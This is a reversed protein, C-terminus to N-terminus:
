LVWCFDFLDINFTSVFSKTKVCNSWLLQELNVQLKMLLTTDEVMNQVATLDVKVQPRVQVSMLHLKSEGLHLSDYKKSGKMQAPVDHCESESEAEGEAQRTALPNWFYCAGKTLGALLKLCIAVQLKGVTWRGIELTLIMCCIQLDLSGNNGMGVESGWRLPKYRRWCNRARLWTAPRMIACSRWWQTRWCSSSKRRQVQSNWLPILEGVGIRGNRPLNPLNKSGSCTFSEIVPNKYSFHLSGVPRFM